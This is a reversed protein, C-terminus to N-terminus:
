RKLRAAVDMRQHLIRVVIIDPGDYRFVIFHSGVSAKFYGKRIDQMSRAKQEGSALASCTDRIDLIYRDAQVVNWRAATYDWISGLDRQAAPSLTYGTM